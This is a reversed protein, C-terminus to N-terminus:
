AKQTTVLQLFISEYQLWEELICNNFFPPSAM